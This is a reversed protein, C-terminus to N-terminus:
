DKNVIKFDRLSMMDFLSDIKSLDFIMGIREPVDILSLASGVGGAEKSFKILLGLGSSDISRLKSFDIGIARPKKAILKMFKEELEKLENFIMDGELIILDAAGLNKISLILM